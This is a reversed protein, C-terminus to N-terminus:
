WNDENISELYEVNAPKDQYKTYDYQSGMASHPIMYVAMLVLSALIPYLHSRKSHKRLMFWALIWFLFAVITKNDTLDTGFPWGTWYADFAFKQVLPGLILGGILLFIITLKTYILTSKRERFIAAIGTRTSFLMALFMFFIHPILIYDPVIGKYRIKIPEETLYYYNDGSVFKVQYEYKGALEVLHPFKMVLTDGIREMKKYKWDDYSSFRRYKYEGEINDSAVFKMITYASADEIESSRILKYDINEGKIEISGSIPYTPGTARQYVAAAITLTFAIFWLIVAKINKNM